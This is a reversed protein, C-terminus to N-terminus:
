VVPAADAGMYSELQARDLDLTLFVAQEGARLVAVVEEKMAATYVVILGVRRRELADALENLEKNSIGGRVHGAAAGIAGGAAAGGLLGVAPFVATVAGVALGWKLGHRTSEEHKFIVHTGGDDDKAVVAADFDHGVGAERYVRKVEEYDDLAADVTEYSAALVFLLENKTM